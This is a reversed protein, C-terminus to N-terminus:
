SQKNHWNIFDVIAKCVTEILTLRGSNGAVEQGKWNEIHCYNYHSSMGLNSMHEIGMTVSFSEDLNQISEVVPMLDNWQIKKPYLGKQGFMFVSIIAQEQITLNLQNDTETKM